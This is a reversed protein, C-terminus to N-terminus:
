QIVVHSVSDKDFGTFREETTARIEPVSAEIAADDPVGAAITRLSPEEAPTALPKTADATTDM